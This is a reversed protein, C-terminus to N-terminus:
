QDGDIEALTIAKGQELAAHFEADPLVVPTERLSIVGARNLSELMLAEDAPDLVVLNSPWRVQNVVLRGEASEEAVESIPAPIGDPSAEGYEGLNIVLPVATTEWYGQHIMLPEDSGDPNDVTIEYLVGTPIVGREASWIVQETEEETLRNIAGNATGMGNIQGQLMSRVGTLFTSRAEFAAARAVSLDEPTAATFEALALDSYGPILCNVLAVRTDAFARQAGHDFVMTNVYQRLGGILPLTFGHGPSDMRAENTVVITPATNEPRLSDFDIGTGRVAPDVYSGESYEDHVTPHTHVHVTSAQDDHTHGDAGHDHDHDHTHSM